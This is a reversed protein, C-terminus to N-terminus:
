RDRGAGSRLQLTLPILLMKQRDHKGLERVGLVTGLVYCKGFFTGLIPFLSVSKSTAM